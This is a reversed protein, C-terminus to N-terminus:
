KSGKSEGDLAQRRYYERWVDEEFIVDDGRQSGLNTPGYVRIAPRTSAAGLKRSASEQKSM